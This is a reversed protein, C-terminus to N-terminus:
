VLEKTDGNGMDRYRFKGMDGYKWEGMMVRHRWEGM